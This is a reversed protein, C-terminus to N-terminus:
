EHRLAEIPNLAAARKAPVYGFVVGILAAFSFALLNIKVDFTLPIHLGASIGVTLAFALILGMLGGLASLTVAEVLFQMLVEGQVAGIALRIGIERTRETVSVLMINMIGIGGVVLSVGAVAALLGTLTKTAGSLTDSLQKADFINFDDDAGENLHRRERMLKTISASVTTSDYRQDVAVQFSRIDRNGTLRRMVAKIPMVVSDDSGGGFGSTGRKTMVGIIDCSIANLRLSKGVADTDKFLSDRVTDGIVCVSKGAQEEAPSFTRGSALKISNARFYANTTGNATTSWNQAAYIATVSSQVQPVVDIVGGVQNRVADVDDQSFPHPTAGGGRGNGAGMNVNLLNSGLSSIQSQVQATAGNGLTVMTVVAAVGIIIGLTTLFSRMLHRRIARVALIFSTGLM